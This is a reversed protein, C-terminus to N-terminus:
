QCSGVSMLNISADPILCVMLIVTYPIVALSLGVVALLRWDRTDTSPGSDFYSKVGTVTTTLFTVMALRKGNRYTELWAPLPDSSKVLAPCVVLSLSTGVGSFIGTSFILAQEM